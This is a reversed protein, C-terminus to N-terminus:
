ASKTFRREPALFQDGSVTSAIPPFPLGAVGGEFRDRLERHKASTTRSERWWPDCRVIWACLPGCSHETLNCLRELFSVMVQPEDVCFTWRVSLM